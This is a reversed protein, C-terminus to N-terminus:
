PNVPKHHFVYNLFLWASSSRLLIHPNPAAHPSLAGGGEWCPLTSAVQVSESGWQKPIEISTKDYTPRIVVLVLINHILLFDSVHPMLSIKHENVSRKPSHRWAGGSIDENMLESPITLNSYNSCTLM